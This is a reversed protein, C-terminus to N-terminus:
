FLLLKYTKALCLNSSCLYLSLPNSAQTGQNQIIVRVLYGYALLKKILHSGFYSNGGTVCVIKRDRANLSCIFNGSSFFMGHDNRQKLPELELSIAVDM